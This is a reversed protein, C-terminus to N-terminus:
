RGGMSFYTNCNDCRYVTTYGDVLFAQLECYPCMVEYLIVQKVPSGKKKSIGM